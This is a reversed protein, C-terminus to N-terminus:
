RAYNENVMGVHRRISKIGFLIGLDIIVVFDQPCVYQYWRDRTSTRLPKRILPADFGIFPAFNGVLSFRDCRNRIVLKARRDITYLRLEDRCFHRRVFFLFVEYLILGCGAFM